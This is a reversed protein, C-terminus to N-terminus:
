FSFVVYLDGHRDRDCFMLDGNEYACLAEKESEFFDTYHGYSGNVIANDVISSPTDNQMDVGCNEFLNLFYEEIETSPFEWGYRNRVVKMRAELAERVFANM